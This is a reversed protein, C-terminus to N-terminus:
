AAKGSKRLKDAFLALDAGALLIAIILGGLCLLEVASYAFPYNLRVLVQLVVVAAASCSLYIWKKVKRGAFLYARIPLCLFYVAGASFVSGSLTRVWASHPILHFGFVHCNRAAMPNAQDAQVQGFTCLRVGAGRRRLGGHLPRVRATYQRSYVVIKRSAPPM